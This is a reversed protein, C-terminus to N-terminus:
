SRIITLIEDRRASMIANDPSELNLRMVPDNASPRINAWWDKTRITIGDTRDITADTYTDVIEAYIEEPARVIHSNIEGSHHYRKVEHVLESLSKEERQIISLIMFVPLAGGESFYSEKFFFHGSLEIGLVANEKRMRTRIHTHGV